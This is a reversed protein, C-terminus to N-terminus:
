VVVQGESAVRGLFDLDLANIPFALLAQVVDLHPGLAGLELLALGHDLLHDM